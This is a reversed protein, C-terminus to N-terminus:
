QPRIDMAMPVRPDDFGDLRLGRLQLVARQQADAVGRGDFERVEEDAM